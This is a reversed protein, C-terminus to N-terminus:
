LGNESGMAAAGQLASTAAGLFLPRVGDRINRASLLLM